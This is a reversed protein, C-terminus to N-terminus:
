APPAIIFTAREAPEVTYKLTNGYCGCIALNESQTQYIM